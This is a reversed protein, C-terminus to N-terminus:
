VFGNSKIEATLVDNSVQKLEFKDRTIVTLEDFADTFNFAYM